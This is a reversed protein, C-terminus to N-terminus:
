NFEIDAEAGETPVFDDNSPVRQWARQTGYDKFRMKNDRAKGDKGKYREWGQIQLNMIDAIDQLEYPKPDTYTSAALAKKWIMRSCVYEVNKNEDLWEQIVGVRTDDPTSDTRITDLESDYKRNLLLSFGHEKGYSMAEAYCQLVYERTEQEDKMPHVEARSGDCIIPIFRRNGTRDEPLFQPKNSTGIFICQRPYVESYTAYPERYDDAARSIYAKIQEVDKTRRTAIMEGLECIWHGRINEFSRKTDGLDGLSDTFWKDDIALFRCLSSKGTGQRTDAIIICYDFKCGPDTVRQIAGNLLLHTVATTYDTREAGLYRPLLEGIRPTGDWQLSNLKEVIPHYKHDAAVTNIADRIHNKNDIGYRLAIERRINNLDIDRIPHPMIDWIFGRAETRGNLADLRLRDRFYPDHEIIEVYNSFINKIAGLETRQLRSEFGTHIDLIQQSTTVQPKNDAISIIKKDTM